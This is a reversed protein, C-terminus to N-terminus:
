GAPLHRARYRVLSPYFMGAIVANATATLLIVMTMTLLFMGPVPFSVQVTAGALSVAIASYVIGSALTALFAAVCPASKQEHRLSSFVMLCVAAGLPESLLFAPNLLSRSILAAIIGSALGIGIAGSFSPLVVMIALSSFGILVNPTVPEGAMVLMFRVLAGTSLLMGILFADRSDVM